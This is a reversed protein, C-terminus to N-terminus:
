ASRRELGLLEMLRGARWAELVRLAFTIGNSWRGVGSDCGLAKYAIALEEIDHRFWLLGVRNPRGRGRSRRRILGDFRPKARMLANRLCEINCGILRGAEESSIWEASPQECHALPAPRVIQAYADGNEWRKRLLELPLGTEQAVRALDDDTLIVRKLTGDKLVHGQQSVRYNQGDKTFKM